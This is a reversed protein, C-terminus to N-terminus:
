AVGAPPFLRNYIREVLYNLSLFTFSTLLVVGQMMPYDHRLVSRAILRGLGPLSFVLEVIISGAILTAAINSLQALWPLLSNRLILGFFLRNKSMGYSRGAVVYRRASIFEGEKILIQSLSCVPYISLVFAATLLNRLYLSDLFFFIQLKLFVIGFSVAIVLSPISTFFSTLVLVSRKLGPNRFVLYLAGTSLAISIVLAIASYSLTALYAIFIDPFVPRRTVFSTLDGNILDTLFDFFQRYLPRDLGLEHRLADVAAETTNVGLILRVPDTPLASFLIFVLLLLFLCLGLHYMLSRGWRRHGPTNQRNDGSRM